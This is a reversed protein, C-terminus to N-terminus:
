GLGRKHNAFNPLLLRDGNTIDDPCVNKEDHSDQNILPVSQLKKSKMTLVSLGYRGSSAKENARLSVM